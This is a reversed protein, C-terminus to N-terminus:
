LEAERSLSGGRRRHLFWLPSFRQKGRVSTGDAVAKSYEAGGVDPIEDERCEREVGKALFGPLGQRDHGRWSGCRQQDGIRSDARHMQHSRRVREQPTELYEALERPRPAGVVADDVEFDIRGAPPEQPPEASQVGGIARRDMGAATPPSKPVEQEGSVGVARTFKALSWAAHAGGHTACAQAYLGHHVAPDLDHHRMRIELSVPSRQACEALSVLGSAAPM